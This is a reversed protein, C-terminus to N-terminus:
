EMDHSAIARPMKKQCQRCITDDHGNNYKVPLGPRARLLGESIYLEGPEIGKEIVREGEVLAGIEVPRQQVIHDAGVVLLYKGGIDTGLANEAVLVADKQIGAPLRVRVFMGPLLVKNKNDIVGRVSITGTSPDVVNDIYDLEGEYTYDDESSVGM